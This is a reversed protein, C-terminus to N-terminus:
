ANDGGGKETQHANCYDIEDQTLLMTRGDRKSRYFVNGAAKSSPVSPYYAFEIEEGDEFDMITYIRNPKREFKM